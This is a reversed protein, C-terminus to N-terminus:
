QVLFSLSWRCMSKDHTITRQYPHESGKPHISAQFVPSSKEQYRELPCHLIWYLLSLLVCQYQFLLLYQSLIGFVLKVFDRIVTRVVVPDADLPKDPLYPYKSDDLEIVAWPSLKPNQEEKEVLKRLTLLKCMYFMM